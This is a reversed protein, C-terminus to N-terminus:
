SRQLGQGAERSPRFCFFALVRTLSRGRGVLLFATGGGPYLSDAVCVDGVDGDGLAGGEGGEGGLERDDLAFSEM